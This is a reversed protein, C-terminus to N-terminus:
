GDRVIGGEQLHLALYLKCFQKDEEGKLSFFRQVQFCAGRCLKPRDTVVSWHRELPLIPSFSAEKSQFVTWSIMTCRLLWDVGETAATCGAQIRENRGEDEEQLAKHLVVLSNPTIEFLTSWTSFQGM